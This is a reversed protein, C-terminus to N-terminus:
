TRAAELFSTLADTSMPRDNNWAEVHLADPFEVAAVLAVSLGINLLM